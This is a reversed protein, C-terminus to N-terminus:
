AETVRLDDSVDIREFQAGLFGIALVIEGAIVAAAPVAGVWARAAESTLGFGSLWYGFFFVGIAPLMTLGMLVLQSLLLLIGRGTGEIGRAEDRSISAWGPLLIVFGNHILLQVTTLPIAFLLMMPGWALMGHWDDASRVPFYLLAGLLAAGIGLGCILLAAAAIQAGVMRAGSIPYARLVDLREFDLRLDNRSLIPGFIAIFGAFLFLVGSAIKMASEFDVKWWAFLAVLLTAVLPILFIPLTTRGAAILNKWVIAIEPPGTEALAFPVPTRRLTVRRTRGGPSAARTKEFRKRAHEITADEYSVDLKVAVLACLAAFLALATVPLALGAFTAASGAKAMLGPVFLVAALPFSALPKRLAELFMEAGRPGEANEIGRMATELEGYLMASLIGIVILVAFARVVFGIGAAALRARGMRVMLFYVQLTALVAWIGLFNQGRLFLARLVVSSVFLPLQARLVVFLVISARSLPSPFLFQVEAENLELGAESRPLAWALLMITGLILTFASVILVSAIEEPAAHDWRVADPGRRFVFFGVWALGALASVLYRLQRLRRLRHLARNRFSTFAYWLFTAITM